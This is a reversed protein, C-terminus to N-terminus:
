LLYTGVYYCLIKNVYEVIIIRFNRYFTDFYFYTDLSHSGKHVSTDM